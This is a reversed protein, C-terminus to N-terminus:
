KAKGIVHIWNTKGVQTITCEIVELKIVSYAERLEAEDFYSFFREYPYGYDDEHVIQEEPQDPRRQKVAIALLGGPKLIQKFGEMVMPVQAKPIHLLSAQACIGDFREPLTGIKVMDMVRFDGDPNEQKAIEIFNEAIDIGIVHSGRDMLFRSKIGGACGVDLVLSQKPLLEIFREMPAIWWNDEAHDEHWDQAIQNYTKALDM